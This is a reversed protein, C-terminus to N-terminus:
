KSSTPHSLRARPNTGARLEAGDTWGDGDTDRNRPNTRYRNVEAGDLIGDRDTDRRRADTHYRRVEANDTLGDRDTDRSRPNTRYRNVEAGDLLGDTDTDRWRADTRYRRLEADDNLGDRDADCTLRSGGSTNPAAVLGGNDWINCTWQNGSNRVDFDTVPGFAACKGSEGRQFVNDRYIVNFSNPTPSTAKEGGYTCYSSGANAGFLNREILAGNIPAFNPIFNVDGTCGESVANVPQDCVIFNHQLTINRGGDSLFGGLHWPENSPLYQGHLYSDQVLCSVSNEECQVSTQGGHVNSRIVKLNGWGVASLQVQGADVESDQLTLSWSSSGPSDTDLIVTGNIRSNKITVNAARIGLACNVTKGEIVTNAATISCPGTYATLQTGAPVGTNSPGPWCSGAGDPGGPVDKARGACAAPPEAAAIRATASSRPSHPEALVSPSACVLTLAALLGALPAARRRFGM